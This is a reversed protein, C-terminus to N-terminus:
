QGESGTNFGKRVCFRFRVWLNDGHFQRGVWKAGYDVQTAFDVVCGLYKRIQAKFIKKTKEKETLNKKDNKFGEWIVICM